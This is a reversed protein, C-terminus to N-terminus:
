KEECVVIDKDELKITNMAAQAAALEIRRENISDIIFKKLTEQLTPKTLEEQNFIWLEPLEKFEAILDEEMVLIVEKKM